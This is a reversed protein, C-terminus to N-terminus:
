PCLNKGQARIEPHSGPYSAHWAWISTPHNQQPKVELHSALEWPLTCNGGIEHGNFVKEGATGKM